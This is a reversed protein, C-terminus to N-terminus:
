GQRSTAPKVPKIEDPVDALSKLSAIAVGKLGKSGISRYLHLAEEEDPTLDSPIGLFYTVPKSLIRSLDVLYEISIQRAGREFMGYGVDSLKMQDAVEQQSLGAEKRASQIRKGIKVYLENGM